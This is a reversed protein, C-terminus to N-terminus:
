LVEQIHVRHEDPNDSYILINDLYVVVCVDLLDAFVENVFHQFVAHANSLGFPMVLWEFLSYCTRFAMKWENGPAM